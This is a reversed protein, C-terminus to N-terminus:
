AEGQQHKAISDTSRHAPHAPAFALPNGLFTEYLRNLATMLQLLQDTKADQAITVEVTADAEARIGPHRYTTGAEKSHELM